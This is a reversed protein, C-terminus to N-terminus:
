RPHPRPVCVPGAEQRGQAIGAVYARQILACSAEYHETRSWTSEMCAATLEAILGVVVKARPDGLPLAGLEDETLEHTEDM